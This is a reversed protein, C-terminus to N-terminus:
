RKIGAVGCRGRLAAAAAARRRLSNLFKLLHANCQQPILPDVQPVDLARKAAGALNRFPFFLSDAEREVDWMGCVYRLFMGRWAM